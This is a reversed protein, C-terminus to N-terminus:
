GDQWFAELVGGLSEEVDAALEPDVIRPLLARLRLRARPSKLSAAVGTLEVTVRPDASVFLSELYPEVLTGMAGQVCLAGVLRARDEANSRELLRPLRRDRPSLGPDGHLLAVAAEVASAGGRAKSTLAAELGARLAPSRWWARVAVAFLPSEPRAVAARAWADGLTGGERLRRACEVAADLAEEDGDALHLVENALDLAAKGGRPVAVSAVREIRGWNRADLASKMESALRADLGRDRWAVLLGRAHSAPPDEDLVLALVPELLDAPAGVLALVRMADDVRGGEPARVQRAALERIPGIHDPAVLHQEVLDGLRRMWGFTEPEHFRAALACVGSVGAGGFRRVLLAAWADGPAGSAFSPEHADSDDGLLQLLLVLAERDPAEALLARAMSLRAARVRGQMVALRSLFAESPPGELLSAGVLDAPGSPCARAFRELWQRRVPDRVAFAPDSAAAILRPGALDDPLRALAGLARMRMPSRACSLWYDVMAAATTPFAAALAETAWAADLWLADHEADILDLLAEEAEAPRVRAIAALLADALLREDEEREEEGLSGFSAFAEPLAHEVLERLTPVIDADVLPSPEAALLAHLAHGRVTLSPVKLAARLAPITKTREADGLLALMDIAVVRARHTPGTDIVDALRAAIAHGDGLDPAWEEDALLARAMERDGALAVEVLLEGAEPDDLPLLTAVQAARERQHWTMKTGYRVFLRVLRVALVPQEDLGALAHDLREARVLLRKAARAGEAADTLAWAKEIGVALPRCAKRLRRRASEVAAEDLPPPISSAGEGAPGPPPSSGRAARLREELDPVVGTKAFSWAFHKALTADIRDHGNM